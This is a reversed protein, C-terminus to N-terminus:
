QPGQAATTAAETLGTEEIRNAAAQAQQEAAEADTTFFKSLDINRGQGIFAAMEMLKVRAKVEDPLSAMAALDGMALRFNELDGNRSLADLGTVITVELDAGALKLDIEQFLWVAVPKQLSGALTSYVGGYATELEQATMRVEEQTVREADRIVASGMLFGRSISREYRQLTNEAVTIANPNGGQTPAVDQPRGPLADGNSSNNLDEVSTTGAPDVMWRYETGLVAGNVVSESLVSLAELAGSYEEVLGTGYDAEDALDWTLALYPLRDEAWSGNFSKPLQDGGLWQTMSYRGGAERKIWKFFEVSDDDQHRNAFLVQVAPDLEDFKINERILIQMVQGRMNRKVVFNKIGITRLMGKELILLVNGAVVLHRMVQFLKPRQGKNDLEKIAEREGNALISQLQIDTMQMKAALEQTKTGAVLKAFPRSPAFMSLMLKNCLHNVAQAGLSQYDQSEDTANHDYGSPLCVKPITLSAYNEIRTILSQRLGDMAAWAQSATNYKAV